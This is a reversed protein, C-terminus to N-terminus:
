YGAAIVSIQNPWVLEAIRAIVSRFRAFLAQKLIYRMGHM